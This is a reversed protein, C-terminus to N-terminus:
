AMLSALVERSQAGVVAQGGSVFTPVGRVGAKVAANWHEERQQGLEDGSLAARVEEADLAFRACIDVLVEVDYLNLNDVQYAVFLATHLDLMQTADLRSEAWLALEQARQTNWVFRGEITRPYELGDAECMDALRNVGSVPIGKARLYPELAQGEQAAAPNLPFPVVQVERPREDLLSRLRAFGLYCWPCAYDSFVVLPADDSM